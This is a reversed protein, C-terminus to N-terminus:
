DNSRKRERGWGRLEEKGKKTINNAMKTKTLSAKEEKCGSGLQTPQTQPYSGHKGLMTKEPKQLCTEIIM